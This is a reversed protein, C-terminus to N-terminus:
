RCMLGIHELHVGVCVKGWPHAYASLIRTPIGGAYIVVFRLWYLFCTSDIVLCIRGFHEQHVGLVSKGWPHAHASFIRTPFM